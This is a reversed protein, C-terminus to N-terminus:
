KGYLVSGLVDVAIRQDSPLMHSYVDLTTAVRAHGLRTSVIAIPVGRALMLSASTHRLSHFKIPRVKAAAILPAFLREGLNSPQLPEGLHDSKTRLASLEKSFVLGHDHFAVRNKMKVENQHQRHRKLLEVTEASLVITRMQGSKTPGFTPHAGTKLLQRVVRVHGVELDVHEWALGCLESKRMGGDLALAFFAAAQPGASKAADLFARVEAETWVQVHESRDLYDRHVHPRQADAIPNLVVLRDRRATAFAGHLLAAHVAITAPARGAQALVAFYAEVHTSRVQQLRMRGLPATSLDNKLIGDYRELTSARLSARRSDLWTRVWQELTTKHPDVFSGDAQQAILRALEAQVDKKLAEGKLWRPPTYTVLM